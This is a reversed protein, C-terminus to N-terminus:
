VQRKLAVAAAWLHGELIDTVVMEAVGSTLPTAQAKWSGQPLLHSFHLLSCTSKDVAASPRRLLTRWLIM